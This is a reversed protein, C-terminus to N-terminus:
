VINIYFWYIFRVIRTPLDVKSRKIEFTHQPKRTSATDLSVLADLEETEALLPIPCRYEYLDISNDPDTPEEYIVMENIRDNMESLLM